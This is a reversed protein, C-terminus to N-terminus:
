RSTMALKEKLEKDSEIIQLAEASVASNNNVLWVLFYKRSHYIEGLSIGKMNGIDAVAEYAQELSGLPLSSTQTPTPREDEDQSEFSLAAQGDIEECITASTPEEEKTTEAAKTTKKSTQKPKSKTTPTSSLHTPLNETAKQEDIQKLIEEEMQQTELEATELFQCGIGANALARSQALGIAFEEVKALREERSLASNKLIDEYRLKAFGDVVCEAPAESWKFCVTAACVEGNNYWKIEKTFLAHFPDLLHAIEKKISLPLYFRTEGLSTYEETLADMHLLLEEKSTVEVNKKAKIKAKLADFHIKSILDKM